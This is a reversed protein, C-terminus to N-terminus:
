FTLHSINQFTINIKLIYNEEVFMTSTETSVKIEDSLKYSYKSNVCSKRLETELRKSDLSIGLRDVLSNKMPNEGRHIQTNDFSLNRSAYDEM